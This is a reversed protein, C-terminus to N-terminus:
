NNSSQSKANLVSVLSRSPEQLLTVFKTSSGTLLSLLQSRLSELGPLNALKSVEKPELVRGELSGAKVSVKETKKFYNSLAETIM